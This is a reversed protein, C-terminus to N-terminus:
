PQLIPLPLTSPTPIRMHGEGLALALGKTERWATPGLGHGGAAEDGEARAVKAM